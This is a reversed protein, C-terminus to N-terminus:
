LSTGFHNNYWDNAPQAHQAHLRNQKNFFDFFNMALQETKEDLDLQLPLDIGYYIAMNALPGQFWFNSTDPHYRRRSESLVNDQLWEKLHIKRGAENMAQWYPTDNKTALYMAVQIRKMVDENVGNVFKNYRDKWNFTREPDNKINQVIRQMFQMQTSFNNADYVDAFGSSIGLTIVNSVFTDEVFGPEWTLKRKIANKMWPFRQNFEDIVQQDDRVFNKNYIYGNGTRRPQPLNFVWGNQMAYHRTVCDSPHEKEHRNPGQGIFASNNITDETPRWRFPVYQMFLRKFGTCDIFLDAEINVDDDGVIHTVKTGDFAVHKIRREQVKVGNPIGFEEHIVDKVYDANLHFSSVFRRHAFQPTSQSHNMITKYVSPWYGETLDASRMDLNRKGKNYLHLWVDWLSHHSIPGGDHPPGLPRTRHGYTDPISQTIVSASPNWQFGSIMPEKKGDFGFFAVSYKYSSNSKRMWDHAHEDTLGFLNFMVDRCNFAISEGVGIYPTNPDHVITVDVNPCNRRLAAAVFYGAAGAGVIVVKLPKAEVNEM